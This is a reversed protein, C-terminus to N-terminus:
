AVFIGFVAAGGLGYIVLLARAESVGFSSAGGSLHTWLFKLPYVYFLVLFLLVANLLRTKVDQLGFRRFFAYHKFWIQMLIAFCIAFPVFARMTQVLDAFARPVELSVVLLTLAFAFVADSFGEIRLMERRPWRASDRTMVTM